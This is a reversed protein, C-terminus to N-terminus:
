SILVTIGVAVIAIMVIVGVLALITVITNRIDERRQKNLDMRSKPADGFRVIDRLYESPEPRHTSSCNLCSYDM